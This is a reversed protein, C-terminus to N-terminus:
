LSVAHIWNPLNYHNSVRTIVGNKVEFFAGVRIKYFQNRAVPLSKQTKKYTGEIFFEAAFRTPEDLNQFVCLDVVKESYHEDMVNLFKAFAEKGVETAGQSIDHQVKSDMLSLMGNWDRRNFASYYDHIIKTSSM